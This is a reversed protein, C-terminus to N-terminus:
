LRIAFSLGLKFPDRVEKIGESVKELAPLVYNEGLGKGFGIFGKGIGKIISASIRIGIEVLKDANEEVWIAIEGLIKDIVEIIKDLVTESKWMDWTEPIKGIEAGKSKDQQTM